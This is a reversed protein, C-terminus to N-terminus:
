GQPRYDEAFAQLERVWAEREADTISFLPILAGDTDIKVLLLGTDQMAYAITAHPEMLNLLARLQMGRYLSPSQAQVDSLRRILKVCIKQVADAGLKVSQGGSVATLRCWDLDGIQFLLAGEQAMLMMQM